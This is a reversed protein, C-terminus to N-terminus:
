LTSDANWIYTGFIWAYLPAAPPSSELKGNTGTSSPFEEDDEDDDMDEDFLEELKIEAKARQEGGKPNTDNNRGDIEIDDPALSPADLIINISDEQAITPSAPPSVSHPM